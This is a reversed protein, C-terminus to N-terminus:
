QTRWGHPCVTCDFRKNAAYMNIAYQNVTIVNVLTNRSHLVHNDASSATKVSYLNIKISTKHLKDSGLEAKM